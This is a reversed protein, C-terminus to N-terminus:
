RANAEGSLFNTQVRAEGTPSTMTMQVPMNAASIATPPATVFVRVARVEDPKV